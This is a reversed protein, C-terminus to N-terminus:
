KLQEWLHNVQKQMQEVEKKMSDIQESTYIIRQCAADMVILLREMLEQMTQQPQPLFVPTPPTPPASPRPIDLLILAPEPAKAQEKIADLAPDKLEIHQFVPQPEVPVPRSSPWVIQALEVPNKLLYEAKKRNKLHIRVTPPVGTEAKSVVGGDELARLTKRQFERVNASGAEGFLEKRTQPGGSLLQELALQVSALRAKEEAPTM